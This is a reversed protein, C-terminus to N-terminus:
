ISVSGTLFHLGRRYAIIDGIYPRVVHLQALRHRCKRLQNDVFRSYVKSQHKHLYFVKKCDICLFKQKDRKIGNRRVNDSSCRTYIVDFKEHREQGHIVRHERCTVLRLNKPRNDWPKKNIHHVKIWPLICVKHHDEYVLIHEFIYGNGQVHPNHYEPTARVLIYGNTHETRGGKWTYSREGDMVQHGDIFRRLRGHEDRDLRQQGCNCACYILRVRRLNKDMVCQKCHKNYGIDSQKSTCFDDFKKWVKCTV